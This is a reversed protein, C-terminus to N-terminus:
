CFSTWEILNWGHLCAFQGNGNSDCRAPDMVSSIIVLVMSRFWGWTYNCCLADWLTWVFLLNQFSSAASTAFAAPSTPALLSLVPSPISSTWNKYSCDPFFVTWGWYHWSSTWFPFRSHLHSRSHSSTVKWRHYLLIPPLTLKFYTIPSSPPSCFHNFLCYLFHYSFRPYVCIISWCGSIGLSVSIFIFFRTRGRM